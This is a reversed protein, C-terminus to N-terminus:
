ILEVFWYLVGLIGCVAVITLWFTALDEEPSPKMKGGGRALVMFGFGLWSTASALESEFTSPASQFGALCTCLWGAYGHVKGSL